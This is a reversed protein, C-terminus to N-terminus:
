VYRAQNQISIMNKREFNLITCTIDYDTSLDWSQLRTSIPIFIIRVCFSSLIWLWNESKRQQPLVTTYMQVLMVTAQLM